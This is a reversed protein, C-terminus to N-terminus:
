PAQRLDGLNNGGVCAVDEVIAKRVGQLYSLYATSHGLSKEGSVHFQRSSIVSKIGRHDFRSTQRMVEPVRWKPMDGFLLQILQSPIFNVAKLSVSLTEPYYRFKRLM